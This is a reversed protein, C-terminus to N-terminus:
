LYPVRFYFLFFLTRFGIFYGFINKKNKLLIVVPACEATKEQIKYDMELKMWCQCIKMLGRPGVRM